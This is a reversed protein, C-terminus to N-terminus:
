SNQSKLELKTHFDADGCTLSLSHFFLLSLPFCKAIFHAYIFRSAMSLACHVLATCSNILSVQSIIYVGDYHLWWSNPYTSHSLKQSQHQLFVRYPMVWKKFQVWFNFYSKCGIFFLKYSPKKLPTGAVM